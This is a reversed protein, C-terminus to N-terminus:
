ESGLYEDALQALDEVSQRQDSDAVGSEDFQVGEQKLVEYIDRDDERDVWHFEPSPTGDSRLVRHANTVGATNALHTAVAMPASGMLVAADSYTTWSGAPLAALAAHLTRWRGNEM